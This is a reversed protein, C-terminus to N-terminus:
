VWNEIKLDEIREFEKTNNTVLTMNLSKAHAGILMDYPGIISNRNLLSKKIIGFEKASKEDFNVITIISLFELLAIKNKEMYLSNENGFELEALTITSIYLGKEKNKKLQDLVTQPKKKIIHICINTDLMYM